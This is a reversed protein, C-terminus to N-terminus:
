GPGVDQGKNQWQWQQQQQQQARETRGAKDGLIVATRAGKGRGANGAGRIKPGKFKKVILRSQISNEWVMNWQQHSRGSGASRDIRNQKKSCEERKDITAFELEKNGDKMTIVDASGIAIVGSRQMSANLSQLAGGHGWAAVRSRAMPDVQGGVFEKSGVGIQSREERVFHREPTQIEHGLKEISQRRVKLFCKLGVRREVCEVGSREARVWREERSAARPERQTAAIQWNARIRAWSFNMELVMRWLIFWCDGPTAATAAGSETAGAGARGSRNRNSMGIVDRRLGARELWWSLLGHAAILWIGSRGRASAGDVRDDVTLTGVRGIKLSAHETSASVMDKAAARLVLGGTGRSDEVLVETVGVGVLVRGEATEHISAASQVSAVKREVKPQFRLSGINNGLENRKVIGIGKSWDLEATGNSVRSIENRWVV